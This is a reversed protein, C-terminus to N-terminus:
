LESKNRAIFAAFRWSCDKRQLNDESRLLRANTQAHHAAQPRRRHAVREDSGGDKWQVFAVYKNTFYILWSFLFTYMFVFFISKRKLNVPQKKNNNGIIRLKFVAVGTASFRKAEEWKTLSHRQLRILISTLDKDVLGSEDKLKQLLEKSIFSVRILVNRNLTHKILTNISSNSKPWGRGRKHEYRENGM